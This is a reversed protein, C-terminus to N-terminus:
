SNPLKVFVKTGVTRNKEFWIEGNNKNVFEKIIKLGLGVGKENETGYTSYFQTEDMIKNQQDETIGIGQDEVFLTESSENSKESGVTITSKPHSFKIANSLLNRFIIQFMNKDAFVKADEKFNTEVTIDKNKLLEELNALINLLIENIILTEPEPKLNKYQTRSWNLLNDVLENLQRSSEYIRNISNITEEEPETKYETKLLHSYGTLNNLPNKLDHAIISLLKNKTNNLERLEKEMKKRETIDRLNNLIQYEGTHVDQIIRFNAEVWIYEGNTNQLRYDLRENVLSNKEKFEDLVELTKQQEEPHVPIFASGGIVDEDKYGLLKELGSAYTVNGSKDVVLICDTMNNLLSKYKKDPLHLEQEPVKSKEPISLSCLIKSEKSLYKSEVLFQRYDGNKQKIWYRQRCDGKKICISYLDKILPFNEQRIYNSLNNGILEGEKYGLLREASKTAYIIKGNKDTILIIQDIYESIIEFTQKNVKKKFVNKLM